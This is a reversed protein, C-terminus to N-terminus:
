ASPVDSGLELALFVVHKGQLQFTPFLVSFLQVYRVHLCLMQQFLCVRGFSCCTMLPSKIRKPGPMLGVLITNEVAYRDEKPLNLLTLYIAGISYQTHVYPNFWDINLALAVNNPTDLLPHNSVFKEYGVMLSMM